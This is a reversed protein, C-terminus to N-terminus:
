ENAKNSKSFDRFFNKVKKLECLIALSLYFSGNPLKSLLKNCEPLFHQYKTDSLIERKVRKLLRHIKVLNKEFLEIDLNSLMSRAIMLNASIGRSRDSNTSISDTVFYRIYCYENTFAFSEIYKIAFYHWYQDEHIFGPKFYLNNQIIFKKKILKNWSNIPFRKSYYTKIKRSDHTFEPFLGTFDYRDNEVHPHQYANGQVIDVENYKEVLNVLVNICNETIEDDSDLFYIYDGNSNIVGTNRAVAHGCNSKHKILKFIINGNYTAILHEALKLSNDTSCDEVIICEINKYTQTVVSNFCREFYREKNYLPIAISVLIQSPPAHSITQIM